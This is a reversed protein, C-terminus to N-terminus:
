LCCPCDPPPLVVRDGLHFIWGFAKPVSVRRDGDLPKLRGGNLIDQGHTLVIQDEEFNIYKIEWLQGSSPLPDGKVLLHPFERSGQLEWDAKLSDASASLEKTLYALGIAQRYLEPYFEVFHFAMSWDKRSLPERIRNTIPEFSSALNPWQGNRFAEIEEYADGYDAGYARPREYIQEDVSETALKFFHSSEEPRGLLSQTYGLASYFSAKTDWDLNRHQDKKEVMTALIKQLAGRTWEPLMPNRIKSIPIVKTIWEEDVPKESVPPRHHEIVANVIKTAGPTQSVMERLLNFVRLNSKAAHFLMEAAAQNGAEALHCFAAVGEREEPSFHLGTVKMVRMAEQAAYRLAPYTSQSYRSLESVELATVGMEPRYPGKEQLSRNKISSIRDMQFKIKERSENPPKKSFWRSLFRRMIGFGKRNGEGGSMTLILPKEEPDKIVPIESFGDPNAARAIEFAPFL